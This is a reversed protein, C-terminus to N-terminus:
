PGAGVTVKPQKEQTLQNRNRHHNGGTEPARSEQMETGIWTEVDDGQRVGSHVTM